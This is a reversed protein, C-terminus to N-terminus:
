PASNNRGVHGYYGIRFSSEVRERISDRNLQPAALGKNYAREFERIIKRRKNRLIDRRRSM